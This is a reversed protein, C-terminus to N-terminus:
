RRHQPNTTTRHTVLRHEHPISLYGGYTAAGLGTLLAAFTWFAAHSVNRAAADGAERAKQAAVEKGKEYQEKAQQYTKQWNDVIKGAEEKSKGTRAAVVNVVAERDAANTTDSAQNFLRDLLGNLNQGAAQPDAAASGATNKADTTADDAKKQLADPQLESKGTQKMLDSASQKISDIDIGSDKLQGRIADGVQPSASAMGQGVLSAGQGLARAAGGIIAGVGTTLLYFTFLTTVGWTLVGHLSSDVTRHIGALRGATWGGAFLSILGSLVFWIGAGTGLGRTPDAEHLPDIASAGIAIGLVGLLLQSVLAVTVGALVAAWSVRHTPEAVPHTHTVPVDVVSSHPLTPEIVTSNPMPAKKQKMPSM